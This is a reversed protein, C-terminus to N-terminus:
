ARLFGFFLAIVVFYLGYVIDIIFVLTDFQGTIANIDTFEIKSDVIHCPTVQYISDSGIYTSPWNNDTLSSQTLVFVMWGNYKM